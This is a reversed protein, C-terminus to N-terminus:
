KDLYAAAEPSLNDACPHSILRRSNMAPSPPATAHGPATRACCDVRITLIPYMSDPEGDV